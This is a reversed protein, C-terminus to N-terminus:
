TAGAAGTTAARISLRKKFLADGIKRVRDYNEAAGRPKRAPIETTAIEAAFPEFGAKYDDKAAAVGPGYRSVGVTTAKRQWKETGARKVGGAYLKDINPNSVAAKYTGAANSANTAWDEKPSKVGAEYYTARPPTVDAWKKAIEDVSRIVPKPM